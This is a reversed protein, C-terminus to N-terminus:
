QNPMAPSGVAPPKNIKKKFFPKPASPLELFAAKDLLSVAFRPDLMKNAAERLLSAGESHGLLVIADIAAERIESDESYLFPEIKPLNSPDYTISLEYLNGKIQDKAPSNQSVPKTTVPASDTTKAASNSPSSHRDSPAAGNAPATKKGAPAV